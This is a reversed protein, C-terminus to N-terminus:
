PLWASSTGAPQRMWCGVCVQVWELANSGSGSSSSTGDAAPPVEAAALAAAAAPSPPPPALAARAQQLMLRPSLCGTALWPAISGAFNSSYASGGSVTEAVFARLRRLAEGEGGVPPAEGAAAATSTGCAPGPAAAEAASRPAAPPAPSPLPALGLDALSPLQGPDLREPALPPGRLQEPAPLASRAAM